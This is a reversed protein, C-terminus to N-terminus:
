DDIKVDPLKKCDGSKVIIKGTHIESPKDKTIILPM